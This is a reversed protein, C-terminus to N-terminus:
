FSFTVNWNVKQGPKPALFFEDRFPIPTFAGKGEETNPLPYRRQKEFEPAEINLFNEPNSKLYPGPESHWFSFILSDVLSSESNQFQYNAVLTSIGDKAHFQYKLLLSPAELVPLTDTKSVWHISQLVFKNKSTLMPFVQSKLSPFYTKGRKKLVPLLHSSALSVPPQSFGEALPIAQYDSVWPKGLGTVLPIILRTNESRLLWIGYGTKLPFFPPGLNRHLFEKWAKKGNEWAFIGLESLQHM